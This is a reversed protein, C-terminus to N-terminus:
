PSYGLQEFLRPGAHLYRDKTTEAFWAEAVRANNQLRADSWNLGPFDFRTWDENIFSIAKINRAYTLSFFNVFWSRWVADSNVDIGNVPSSEAIMVPKRKQKAMEFVAELERSPTQSYMHGFLSIGVWDVYADGPWWASLDHGGYPAAAYSHWVFAINDAGEARMIDVIRRYARVYDTPELANHVGDFEYGIRLYIPRQARKAWASFDRVVQDFEGDGARKAVDWTGVMWLGSQLTSQPFREVLQQHNHSAGHEDTFTSTVGDMSPIGWYAAWGGPVPQDPFSSMHEAIGGLTQGLIMLTKGPPPVFKAGEFAYDYGPARETRILDVTEETTPPARTNGRTGSPVQPPIVFGADPTTPADTPGACGSAWLASGVAVHM